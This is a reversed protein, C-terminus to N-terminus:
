GNGGADGDHLVHTLLDDWHQVHFRTDNGAVALRAQDGM